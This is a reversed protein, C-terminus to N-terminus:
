HNSGNSGVHVRNVYDVYCDVSHIYGGEQVNEVEVEKPVDNEQCHREDADVTACSSSHAVPSEEVSKNPSKTEELQLDPIRIQASRALRFVARFSARNSEGVQWRMENGLSFELTVFAYTNSIAYRRTGIFIFVKVINSVPQAFNTRGTSRFLACRKWQKSLLCFRLIYRLITSDSYAM